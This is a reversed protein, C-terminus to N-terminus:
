QEYEEIERTLHEIEETVKEREADRQEQLVQLEFEAVTIQHDLAKKKSFQFLGCTNKEARLQALRQQKEKESDSPQELIQLQEQLCAKEEKKQDVYAKDSTQEEALPQTDTCPQEEVWSQAETALPTEVSLSDSQTMEQEDQLPAAASPLTVGSAITITPSPKNDVKLGHELAYAEAVSGSPAHITTESNWTQFAGEGITQLSAPLYINKLKDCGRFAEAGIETCGEPILISKMRSCCYFAKDEITRLTSPLFVYRVGYCSQFAYGEITTAGRPVVVSITNLAFLFADKGIGKIGEPLIIDEEDCCLKTLFGRDDLTCNEIPVLTGRIEFPKRRSKRAEQDPKRNKPASKKEATIEEPRKGPKEDEPLKTEKGGTEEGGDEAVPCITSMWSDLMEKTFAQDAQDDGATIRLSFNHYPTVTHTIMTTGHGAKYAVYSINELDESFIDHAMGLNAFQDAFQQAVYQWNERSLPKESSQYQPQAFMALPSDMVNDPNEANPWYIIFERTGLVSDEVDERVVFGDPVGISFDLGNVHRNQTFQLEKRWVPVSGGAKEGDNAAAGNKM